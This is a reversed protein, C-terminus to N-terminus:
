RVVSEGGTRVVVSEAPPDAVEESSWFVTWNAPSRAVEGHVRSGKTPGGWVFGVRARPMVLYGDLEFPSPRMHRLQEVSFACWVLRMDDGFCARTAMCKAWWEVASGRAGPHNCYITSPWPIDLGSPHDRSWTAPCPDFFDGGLTQRAWEMWPEPTWWDPSYNAYVAAMGRGSSM